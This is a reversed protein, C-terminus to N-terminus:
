RVVRGRKLPGGYSTRGLAVVRQQTWGELRAHIEVVDGVGVPGRVVYAYRRGWMGLEVQVVVDGPRHAARRELRLRGRVLPRRETRKVTEIM